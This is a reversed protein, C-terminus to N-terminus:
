YNVVDWFGVVFFLDFFGEKLFCVFLFFIWYLFRCCIIFVVCFCVVICYLLVFLFCWIGWEGCCLILKCGMNWFGRWLCIIWYLCEFFLLGLFRWWFWLGSLWSYMCVFCWLWWLFYLIGEGWLLGIECILVLWVISCNRLKWVRGLFSCWFGDIWWFRSRGCDLFFWKGNEWILCLWCRLICYCIGGILYWFVRCCRIM